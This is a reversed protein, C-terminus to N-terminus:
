DVEIVEWKYADGSNKQLRTVQAKATRESLYCFEPLQFGNKAIYGGKTLIFSKGSYEGSIHTGKIQYKNM